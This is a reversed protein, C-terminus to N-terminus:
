VARELVGAVVFLLGLAILKLRILSRDDRLKRWLTPRTSASRGRPAPQASVAHAPLTLSM